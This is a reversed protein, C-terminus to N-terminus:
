IIISTVSSKRTPPKAIDVTNFAIIETNVVIKINSIGANILNSLGFDILRYRSGFPIAAITRDSTLRSFTNGNLSSFVIGAASYGM